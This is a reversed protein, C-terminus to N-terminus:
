RRVTKKTFGLTALVVLENLNVKVLELGVDVAGERGVQGVRELLKTRSGLLVAPGHLEADAQDTRAGVRRVLVHATGGANRALHTPPHHQSSLSFSEARAPM